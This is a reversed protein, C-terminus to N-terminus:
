GCGGFELVRQPSIGGALLSEAITGSELVLTGGPRIARRFAALSRVTDPPTLYGFSNGWSLAGDFPGAPLDRLDGVHAHVGRARASAVAEPSIDVGTVDYGAAGLRVSMRGDGCPADLVAGRPLLGLVIEADAAAM